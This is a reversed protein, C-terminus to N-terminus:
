PLNCLRCKRERIILIVAVLQNLFGHMRLVHPLTFGNKNQWSNNKPFVHVEENERKRGM